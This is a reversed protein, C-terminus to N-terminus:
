TEGLRIRFRHELIFGLNPGFLARLEERLMYVEDHDLRRMVNYIHYHKTPCCVYQVLEELDYKASDNSM